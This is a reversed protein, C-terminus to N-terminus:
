NLYHSAMLYCVRVQFLTSGSRFTTQTEAYSINNQECTFDVRFLTKRIGYIDCHPSELDWLTLVTSGRRFAADSLSETRSTIVLPLIFMHVSWELIVPCNTHTETISERGRQSTGNFMILGIMMKSYQYQTYNDANVSKTRFMITSIKLNFKRAIPTIITDNQYLNENSNTGLTGM